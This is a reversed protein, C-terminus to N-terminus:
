DTRLRTSVVWWGPRAVEISSAAQAAAAPTPFLGFCTAGSGSMRALLCDPQAHLLDLIDGIAPLLGIAAETLDNGQVQIMEALECADRPTRGLPGQQSPPSFAGQRAKFVAPTSLGINPNVLVIPAPPLSPAPTLTEGIGELRAPQGLLCIPVDAGIASGLEALKEDRISLRWLEALALLTAAADSSGGGIGSAIPLRKTLRIAASAPRGTMDVLQRAARLVLNDAGTDELAPGFPGDLELRLSPACGVEILDGFETFAVLSDLLHYGDPRRGVVRLTLNVKAPALRSVSYV